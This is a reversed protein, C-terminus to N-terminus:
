ACAPIIDLLGNSSGEDDELVRKRRRWKLRKSRGKKNRLWLRHCGSDYNEMSISNLTLIEYNQWYM